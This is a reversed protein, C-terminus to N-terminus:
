EKFVTNGEVITMNINFKEDFIVIDSDKGIKLSGKKNDVKLVRAPNITAMAVADQIKISTKLFMNKVANNLTLISGALTGDVLRASNDKVVVKQGGLEYNGDELNGARMSDTILVIKEKGKVNILLEFIAPHVHITDAIIECSVKSNFIAGVVGPKRHHLPTMANFIHTSHSIGMDIAKLAEEYSANSHGISMVINTDRKMEKIFEEAGKVEPALTILKVIDKYNKIFDYEAKRIYEKSQAGKYEESIFPGEVNAGLVKAGDFKESLAERVTDLAKEIKEKSMTMTTPLFSTVGNKCISTSIKEIDELTGDMTDSGGSGHIHVDIFGPSVYNNKADIIKPDKVRKLYEEIKDEDILDIIKENFILAKNKLVKDELIIKGNIIIKM